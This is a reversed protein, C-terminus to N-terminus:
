FKDHTGRQKPISFFFTAGEELESEVWIKGGHREVIKKCLALGVGTGSYERITHLRQFIMFIREHFKPSIGIGNDKVSFCWYDGADQCDIHVRPKPSRNYKIANQILNQFLSVIQHGDVPPDPLPSSSIEAHTEEIISQLNDRVTDIIINFDTQKFSSGRTNVRSLMLLDAILSQMRHGATVSREIYHQGKEDLQDTYRCQLLQLFGVVARLPEQLDHSAVYAFQELEANSRELEDLTKRLATEAKKRESIDRVVSVIGISNGVEDKLLSVTHETPFIEGNKRKAKFEFEAAVGREFAENLKRGFEVYHAHDVHLIETSKGSLEKETYGFIEEVAKNSNIVTRDSSIVMVAEELSNFINRLWLESEKLNAEMKLRQTCDRAVAYTIGQDIDPHSTWELWKVSGDKCMYRNQFNVVTLGRQLQKQIVDLTTERDPPYVFEMFPKSMLEEETYGLIEHAAPNILRFYGNIDAICFIDSVLSFFNEFREKAKRRDTIDMALGEIIIDGNEERRDISRDYFWHWDGDADKIRYEIKFHRGEWFRAIAADVIERDEPHISHYWTFPNEILYAASYGLVEKIKDSVHFGGKDKSFWYLIDPSGDVLKQYKEKSDRLLKEIRKRDTIDIGMELVMMEGDFDYFPYDYIQYIKGDNRYEWEMASQTKFVEFTPCPDCPEDRGKIVQYCPLSLDRTFINKFQQNAFAITYNSRQLYIFAPLRNLLNFFKHRELFIDAEAQRRREIEKQLEINADKLSEAREVVRKELQSHSLKLQKGFQESKLHAYGLEAILEAFKSLYDLIAEIREEPIIPVHSVAELYADKDFGYLRAQQEFFRQKAPDPPQHFFQGTFYNAVHQGDVIIPAAADILGHPCKYVVKRDGKLLGERILIDSQRCIKSAEPHNRHFKTCIDQWGSGTLIEGDMTIISSPIGSAAYFADTISQIKEIDLIQYVDIKM